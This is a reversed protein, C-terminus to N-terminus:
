EPVMKGALLYGYAKNEHATQPQYSCKLFVCHPSQVHAACEADLSTEGQLIFLQEQFLQPDHQVRLGQQPSFPFNTM